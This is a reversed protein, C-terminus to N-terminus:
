TPPTSTCTSFDAPPLGHTTVPASGGIRGDARRLDTRFAAHLRLDEVSKPRTETEQGYPTSEREGSAWVLGNSEGRRLGCSEDAQAGM